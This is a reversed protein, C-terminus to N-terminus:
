YLAIRVFVRQRMAARIDAVVRSHYDAAQEHVQRRWHRKMAPAQVFVLEGTHDDFAGYLRPEGFKVGHLSIAVLSTAYDPALM